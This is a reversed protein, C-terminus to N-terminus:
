LSAQSRGEPRMEEEWLEGHSEVIERGFDRAKYELITDSCVSAGDITGVSLYQFRAFM